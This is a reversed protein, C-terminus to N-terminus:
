RSAKLDRVGAALATIAQMLIRDPDDSRGIQSTIKIGNEPTHSVAVEQLVDTISQPGPGFQATLVTGTNVGGTRGYQFGGSEALKVTVTGRPAGEALVEAARQAHTVGDATDRADQFKEIRDGYEVQLATDDDRYFERLVGEGQGGVVVSTAEPAAANFDWEQIVRSQETLPNPYVTPEFVDLTIAGDQQFVSIGLGSTVWAPSIQDWLPHMRTSVTIPNGRGLDPAVAVPFTARKMVNRRWFDKLVTEAPGKLELRERVGQGTTTSTTLDGEPNPWGLFNHLIRFDDQMTFTLEGQVGPGKGGKLRVPGTMPVRDRFRIMLRTGPEALLAADPHSAKVTVTAESIACFKDTFSLSKWASLPRQWKLEKDYIDVRLM